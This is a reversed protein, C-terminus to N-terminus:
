DRRELIDKTKRLIRASVEKLKPNTVILIISHASPFASLLLRPFLSENRGFTFINMTFFVMGPFYLLYLFLSFLLPKMVNIHVQTSLDKVDASSNKLNRMHKWLSLLLLISATVNISFNISGFVLQPPGFLGSITKCIASQSANAPLTGTQNCWKKNISYDVFPPLIFITFVTISMGLLRPMLTNVRLKLWIFLPNTFNAVKLCYFVSLWTACWLSTMNLFIWSFHIVAGAYSDLSIESSIYYLVCGMLSIVELLFRSIGLSTLLLDCPLMKRKRLWRHGNVATIFGNGLLGVISVTVLIAWLFIELLPM